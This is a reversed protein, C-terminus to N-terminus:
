LFLSFVQTYWPTKDKKSTKNRKKPVFLHYGMNRYEKINASSSVGSSSVLFYYNIDEYGLM